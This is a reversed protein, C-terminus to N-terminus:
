QFVQALAAVEARPRHALVVYTRGSRRFAVASYGLVEVEGGTVKTDPPLLFLSVPEDGRKYLIHAVSGDLYMCRRGGVLRLGGNHEEDPLAVEWGYRRRLEDRVDAVRLAAPQDFLAFCKIHDLALQAAAAEAPRVVGYALAGAVALVLTAALALPWSVRRPLALVRASSRAPTALSRCRAELGSPAAASVGTRHARLLRRATQGAAVEARCVGCAELHSRVAAQQDPTAEGDVFPTVLPLIDRCTKM